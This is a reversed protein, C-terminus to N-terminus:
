HTLVRASGEPSPPWLPHSGRVRCPLVCTRCRLLVTCTFRPGFRRPGDRLALYEGAVSLACYRSRVIPLVGVLPPCHVQFWMGVLPRLGTPAVGPHRRAKQMIIRRSVTTPSTLGNQPPASAFALRFRAFFDAATSAFGRSSRVPLIFHPYCGM